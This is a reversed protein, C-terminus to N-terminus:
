CAGKWVEGFMGAGLKNIMKIAQRQVEIEKFPVAAPEKPCAKILRCCLGDQDGSVGRRRMRTSRDCIQRVSNICTLECYM